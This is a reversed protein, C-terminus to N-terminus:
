PIKYTGKSINYSQSTGKAAPRVSVRLFTGQGTIGKLKGTGGVIAFKGKALPGKGVAKSKTIFKDGDPRTWVCTTASVYARKKIDTFYLSGQCHCSAHFFPSTKNARRGSLGFVEYNFRLPMKGIFLGKFKSSYYSEGHLSGQKAVAPGAALVPLAVLGVLALALVLILVCRKM